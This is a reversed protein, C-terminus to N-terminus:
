APDMINNGKNRIPVINSGNLELTFNKWSGQEHM